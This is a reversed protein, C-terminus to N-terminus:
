GRQTTSTTSRVLTHLAEDLVHGSGQWSYRQKVSSQGTRGLEEALRRDNLLRIVQDAFSASNDAVLLDHDERLDLGDLSVRTAVVPKGMALAALIKNKVGSGFRLPCVFLGASELYPRVDPVSGTVHVGPLQALSQVKATPASGVVWFEIEPVRERISPLISECFYVVADENPGYELVGTFVLKTWQVAGGNSRFFETDVGNGITLTKVSPALSKIVSEDIPSNTIVLSFNQALSREKRGAEWAEFHLALRKSKQAKMSRTLLLTWSDHIDLVAPRASTSEVYQSTALGDVYLIDAHKESALSHITERILRYYDPYLYETEFFAGRHFRHRQRRWWTTSSPPNPLITLSKFVQRTGPDSLFWQHREQSSCRTALHLEHRRSLERCLSFLRPSGPMIASAPIDSAM